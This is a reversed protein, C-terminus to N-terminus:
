VEVPTGPLACGGGFRQLNPNAEDPRSQTANPVVRLAARWLDGLGRGHIPASTFAFGLM